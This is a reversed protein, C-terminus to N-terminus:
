RVGSSKVPQFRLLGFNSLANSLTMCASRASSPARSAGGADFSQADCSRIDSWRGCVDSEFPHGHSRLAERTYPGVPPFSHYVALLELVNGAFTNSGRSLNGWLVPVPVKGGRKIRWLGKFRAFHLLIALTLTNFRFRSATIAASRVNGGTPGVRVRRARSPRMTSRCGRVSRKSSM